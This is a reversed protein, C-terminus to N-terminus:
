KGHTIRGLRRLHNAVLVAPSCAPIKITGEQTYKGFMGDSISQPLLDLFGRCVPESSCRRVELRFEPLVYLLLLVRLQLVWLAPCDSELWSAGDFEATPAAHLGRHLADSVVLPRCHLVPQERPIFRGILMGAEDQTHEVTRLAGATASLLQCMANPSTLLTYADMAGKCLATPEYITGM